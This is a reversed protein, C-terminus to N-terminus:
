GQFADWILSFERLNASLFIKHLNEEFRESVGEHLAAQQGPCHNANEAGHHASVHDQAAHSEEAIREGVGNQRTHRDGVQEAAVQEEARQDGRRHHRQGDAVERFLARDLFIGRDPNEERGRQREAHRQNRRDAGIRHIQTM